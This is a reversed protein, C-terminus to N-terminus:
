KKTAKLKLKSLVRRTTNQNAPTNHEGLVALAEPLRQFKGAIHEKYFNYAPCTLIHHLLQFNELETCFAEKGADMFTSQTAHFGPVSYLTGSFNESSKWGTVIRHTRTHLMPHGRHHRAFVLLKTQPPLLSFPTTTPIKKSATYLMEAEALDTSLEPTNYPSQIIVKVIRLGPVQRVTVGAANMSTRLVHFVTSYTLIVPDLLIHPPLKEVFTERWPEGTTKNEALDHLTNIMAQIRQDTTQCKNIEAAVISWANDQTAM